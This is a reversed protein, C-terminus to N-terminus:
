MGHPDAPLPLADTPGAQALSDFDEYGTAEHSGDSGNQAISPVVQFCLDNQFITLTSRGGLFLTRKMGMSANLVCAPVCTSLAAPGRATGTPLGM